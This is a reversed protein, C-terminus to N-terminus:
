IRLTRHEAASRELWDIVHLDALGDRGSPLPQKGEQICEAFHDIQIAFQDQKPIIREERKGQLRSLFHIDSTYDYVPDLHLAGETGLIDYTMVRTSGFSCTFTALREGPFELIATFMEDVETFRDDDVRTTALGQVDLPETGFLHRAANICYVGLDLLPGGGEAKRTRVNGPRVQVTFVSHFSRLEGLEGSHAMQLATRHAESFQLRLATMLLVHHEDAAQIMALCDDTSVGLPKECLVHAGAQASRVTYPRHLHNPVTIYVADIQQERLARELDDYHYTASLGYKQAVEQRKTEDGSLVTVLEARESAAFGPLVAKQSIHGLGIVAFRVRKAM